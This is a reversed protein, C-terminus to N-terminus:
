RGVASPVDTPAEISDNHKENWEREVMEPQHIYECLAACLQDADNFPVTQCGVRVIYGGNVGSQKIEIERMVAKKFQM